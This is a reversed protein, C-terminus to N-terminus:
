GNIRLKGVMTFIAVFLVMLQLYPSYYIDAYLTTFLATTAVSINLVSVLTSYAYGQTYRTVLINLSMLVILFFTAYQDM